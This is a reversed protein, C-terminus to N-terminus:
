AGQLWPPDFVWDDYRRLAAAQVPCERAYTAFMTPAGPEDKERKKVAAEGDLWDAAYKFAAAMDSDSATFRARLAAKYEAPDFVQCLDIDAIAENKLYSAMELIIDPIPVGPMPLTPARGGRHRMLVQVARWIHKRRRQPTSCEYDELEDGLYDIVRDLAEDFTMEDSM